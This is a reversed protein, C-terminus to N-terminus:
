IQSPKASAKPPAPRANPDAAGPAMVPTRDEVEPARTARGVVLVAFLSLSGVIVVCAGVMAAVTLLTRKILTKDDVAEM